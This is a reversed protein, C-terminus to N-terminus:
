TTGAPVCRCLPLHNNSHGRHWDPISQFLQKLKSGPCKENYVTPTSRQPHHQSGYKCLLTTRRKAKRNTKWGDKLLLEIVKYDQFTLNGKPTNQPIMQTTWLSQRKETNIKQLLNIKVCLGSISYCLLVCGVM